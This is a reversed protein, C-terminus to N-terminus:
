LPFAACFSCRRVSIEQLVIRDASFAEGASFHIKTLGKPCRSLEIKRSIQILSEAAFLHPSTM